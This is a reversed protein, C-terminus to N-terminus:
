NKIKKGQTEPMFPLFILVLFCSCLILVMPHIKLFHALEIAFASLGAFIRAFFLATGMTFSRLRTPYIESNYIFLYGYGVSIM